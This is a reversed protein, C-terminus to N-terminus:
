FIIREIAKAVKVRDGGLNNREAHHQRLWVIRSEREEADKRASTPPLDETTILADGKKIGDCVCQGKAACAINAWGKGKSKFGKAMGCGQKRAAIRVAFIRGWRASNGILNFSKRTENLVGQLAEYRKELIAEWRRNARREKSIRAKLRKANSDYLFLLTVIVIMFIM